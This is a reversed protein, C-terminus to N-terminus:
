NGPIASIRAHSIQNNAANDFQEVLGICISIIRYALMSLNTQKRVFSFFIIKQKIIMSKFSVNYFYAIFTCKSNIYSIYCM